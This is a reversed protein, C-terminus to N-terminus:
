STEQQKNGVENLKEGGEKEVVEEKEKRKKKSCM